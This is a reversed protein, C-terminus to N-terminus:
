AARQHDALVEDIVRRSKEVEVPNVDIHGALTILAKWLTWGRGRAWMGEDAPLGAGSTGFDIVASLRGQRVLLNGWSVDGHFWVPAGHWTAALAAEWVASAASTDIRGDLAAIAQRTEGDYVSLPGGRFFNHQGPVPGGAPDIRQLAVLFRALSAAFQPLSAIRERTATEGEIWRYVSWHWPYNDAPNGMALPVPVPLPLLPALRPLWRQEKEVQLSYAAASPLRVLM